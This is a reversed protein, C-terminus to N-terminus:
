NIEFMLTFLKWLKNHKALEETLLTAKCYMDAAFFDNPQTYDGNFRYNKDVKEGLRDECALTQEAAVEKDWKEITRSLETYTDVKSAEEQEWRLIGAMQEPTLEFKNAYDADVVGLYLNACSKALTMTQSITYNGFVSLYRRSAKKSIEMLSRKFSLDKFIEQTLGKCYTIIADARKEENMDMIKEMEAIIKKSSLKIGLKKNLLSLEKDAAKKATKNIPM